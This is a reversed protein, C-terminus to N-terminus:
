TSPSRQSSALRRATLRVLWPLGVRHIPRVFFFYFRGVWTTFHVVTTMELVQSGPAGSLCYAVHFILGPARDTYVVGRSTMAALRGRQVAATEVEEISFVGKSAIETSYSDVYDAGAVHDSVRRGAGVRGTTVERPGRIAILPGIGVMAGFLLLLLNGM